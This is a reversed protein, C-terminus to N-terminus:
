GCYIEDGESSEKDPELLIQNLYVSAQSPNISLM